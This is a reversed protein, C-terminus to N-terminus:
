GRCKNGSDNAKEKEKKAVFEKALKQAEAIQQATMKQNLLDRAEIAKQDGQAAALILWKYAELYDEVVGVGKAYMVGLNYQASADGREAVEKFWKIADQYDKAVNWGQEAAKRFWKLAEQYDQAVDYGKAYMVGLGYQAIIYDQEAAKKYWKIAENSDKAVGDGKRYMLALDFQAGADGQEAAKRFWKLAEQYDQAVGHGENYMNGLNCQADANNQEVAKKYWKFAENYDPQVGVGFGFYYMSGLTNQANPDGKNAKDIIQLLNPDLPVSNPQEPLAAYAPAIALLVLSFLVVFKNAM